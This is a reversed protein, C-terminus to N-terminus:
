ELTTSPPTLSTTSMKLSPEGRTPAMVPSLCALPSYANMAAQSMGKIEASTTSARKARKDCTRGDTDNPIPNGSPTPALLSITVIRAAVVSASDPRSGGSSTARPTM